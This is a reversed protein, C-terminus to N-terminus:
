EIKPDILAAPLWGGEAIKQAFEACPVSKGRAALQGLPSGEGVQEPAGPRRSWAACQARRGDARVWSKLRRAVEAAMQKDAAAVWRDRQARFQKDAACGQFRGLVAQCGRMTAWPDPAAARGAPDAAGSPAGAVILMALACVASLPGRM